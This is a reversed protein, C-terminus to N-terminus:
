AELRDYDSVSVLWSVKFLYRKIEKPKLIENSQQSELFRYGGFTPEVCVYPGLQDTWIAWHPLNEQSLSISKEGIRLTMTDQEVFETGALSDLRYATQNIMVSSAHDSLMFYPHFAPAVRLISEGRNELRLNAVFASDSLEYTLQALLGEYGDPCDELALQAQHDDRSVTKWLMIRGFGHQALGSDGGPGFNPLCVHMGGRTKSEGSPVNIITKPFFINQDGVTLTEVWAGTENVTAQAKGRKLLLM